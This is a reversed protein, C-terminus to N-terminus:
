DNLDLEKPIQLNYVVARSRELPIGHQWMVLKFNETTLPVVHWKTGPDLPFEGRMLQRFQDWSIALYKWHYVGSPSLKTLTLLWELRNHRPPPVPLAAKAVGGVMLGLLGRRTMRM